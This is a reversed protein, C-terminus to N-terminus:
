FSDATPVSRSAQMDERLVFFRYSWISIWFGSILGPLKSVDIPYVSMPLPPVEATGPSVPRNAKEVPTPIMLQLFIHFGEPSPADGLIFQTAGEWLGLPWKRARAVNYGIKLLMRLLLDFKYRFRIRDGSHVIKSFYLDNLECLYTDLRSLPGSNCRACVDHIELASSIAKEGSPTTTPTIPQFTKQFCEPFIHENTLKSGQGCYACVRRTSM